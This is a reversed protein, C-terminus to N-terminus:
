GFGQPDIPPQISEARFRRAPQMQFVDSDFDWASFYFGAM